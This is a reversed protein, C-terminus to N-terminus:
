GRLAELRAHALRLAPRLHLTVLQRTGIFDQAGAEMQDLALSLCDHLEGWAADEAARSKLQTYHNKPM